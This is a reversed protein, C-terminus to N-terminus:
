FLTLFHIYISVIKITRVSSVRMCGVNPFTNIFNIAGGGDLWRPLFSWCPKSIKLYLKVIRRRSYIYQWIFRNYSKLFKSSKHIIIKVLLVRHNIWRMVAILIVLWESSISKSELCKRQWDPDLHIWLSIYSDFEIAGLTFWSRTDIM